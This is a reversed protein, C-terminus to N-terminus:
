TTLMPVLYKRAVAALQADDSLDVTPSPITLFSVAVRVMMEAVLEIDVNDSLGGKRQAQRLQSAVFQQVAAFVKGDAGTISGAALTPETNVLESILPNNWSTRLASVFGIVVRDAVSEAGRIDSFFTTFYRRFERLIVQDVLAPKSEFKRYVTIRSLGARKAVDEMSTRQIGIRSFLDYAADLLRARTEDSEEANEVADAYARQVLSPAKASATTLPSM